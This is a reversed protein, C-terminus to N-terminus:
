QTFKETKQDFTPLFGSFAKELLNKWIYTIIIDQADSWLTVSHGLPPNIIFAEEVVAQGRQKRQGWWFLKCIYYRVYTM